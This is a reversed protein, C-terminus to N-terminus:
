IKKWRLHKQQKQRRQSYFKRDARKYRLTIFTFVAGKGLESAVEISGGMLDVMKKVIPM